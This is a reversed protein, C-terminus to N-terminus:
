NRSRCTFDHCIAAAPETCPRGTHDGTEREKEERGRGRFARTIWGGGGSHWFRMNSAAAGTNHPSNNCAPFSPGAQTPQHCAQSTQRGGVQGSRRDMGICEPQLLLPHIRQGMRLDTPDQTNASPSPLSKGM